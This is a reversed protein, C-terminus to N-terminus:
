SLLWALQFTLALQSLVFSNIFFIELPPSFVLWRISFEEKGTIKGKIQILMSLEKVFSFGMSELSSLQLISFSLKRQVECARDPLPVLSDAFLHLLLLLSSSFKLPLKLRLTFLM